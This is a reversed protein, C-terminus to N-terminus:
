FNHFTFKSFLILFKKFNLFDFILIFELMNIQLVLNSIGVVLIIMFQLLIYDNM